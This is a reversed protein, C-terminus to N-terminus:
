GYIDKRMSVTKRNKNNLEENETFGNKRYFALLGEDHEIDADVTIFRCAFLQRNCARALALANDIMYSGIGKYKKQAFESVALKGIKMAPLTKFPYNLGHLEKESLSLKIADAIVSMYAIITGTARERLLWTLAIHDTQSRLSDEILYDNYEAISCSFNGLPTGEALQELYFLTDGNRLNIAVRQRM